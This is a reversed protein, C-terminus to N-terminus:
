DSINLAEDFDQITFFYDYHYEYMYHKSGTIKEGNSYSSINLLSKNVIYNQSGHIISITDNFVVEVSDGFPPESPGGEGRVSFTYEKVDSPLINTKEVITGQSYNILDIQQGSNNIIKFYYTTEEEKQCSTLCLVIFISIMATKM